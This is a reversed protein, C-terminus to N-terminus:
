SMYALLEGELLALHIDVIGFLNSEGCRNFALHKAANALLKPHAANELTGMLVFLAAASENRARCIIETLAEIKEEDSDPGNTEPELSFDLSDIITEGADARRVLDPLWPDNTELGYRIITRWRPDIAVDSMVAQARRRLADSIVITTPEIPRPTEEHASASSHITM